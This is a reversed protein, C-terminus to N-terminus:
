GLPRGDPGIIRNPAPVAIQQQLKVRKVHEEYSMRMEHMIEYKIERYLEDIEDETVLGANILVRQLAMARMREDFINVTVGDFTGPPLSSPVGHFSMGVRAWARAENLLNVVNETVIDLEPCSGDCHAAHTIHESCSYVTPPNDEDWEIDPPIGSDHNGNASMPLTRGKKKNKPRSM